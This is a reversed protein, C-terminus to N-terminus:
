NGKADINFRGKQAAWVKLQNAIQNAFERCEAPSFLSLSAM